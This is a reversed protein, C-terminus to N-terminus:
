KIYEYFWRSFMFPLVRHDAFGYLGCSFFDHVEIVFTKNNYIGVDLTFAIPQDTYTKIMEKIQTVDPFVDFDGSYNQLGVLEGKYIFGRWESDIEILDSIQYNCAPATTCIETFSKIKDNSKVFKEGVIDKETGNIINRLTFKNDLLQDPINIPRPTLKYFKELYNIVFDVSGIPIVPILLNDFENYNEDITNDTLDFTFDNSKNLWNQFECSKILTFSFDHTVQSDYTQILFKM